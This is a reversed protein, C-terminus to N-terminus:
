RCLASMSSGLFLYVTGPIGPTFANALPTLLFFSTPAARRAREQMKGKRHYTPAFPLVQGGNCMEVLFNYEYM